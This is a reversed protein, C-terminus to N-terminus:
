GHHASPVCVPFSTCNRDVKKEKRREMEERVFDARTTGTEDVVEKADVNAVPVKIPREVAPLLQASSISPIGGSYADRSANRTGEDFAATTFRIQAKHYARCNRRSTCSYVM